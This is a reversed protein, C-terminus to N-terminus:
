AEAATAPKPVITFISKVEFSHGEPVLIKEGVKKGLVEARFEPKLQMFSFQVRSGVELVKGDKDSETFVMLSTEAIADAPVLEGATLAKQIAEEEAATKSADKTKRNEVVKANIVDTGVADTLAEAVEVLASIQQQLKGLGENVAGIVNPIVREIEEVRQLANRKNTAMAATTSQNGSM